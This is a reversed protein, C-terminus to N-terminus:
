SSGGAPGGRVRRVFRRIGWRRGSEVTERWAKVWDGGLERVIADADELEYKRAQTTWGFVADKLRDKLKFTSHKDTDQWHLETDIATGASRITGLYFATVAQDPRATRLRLEHM